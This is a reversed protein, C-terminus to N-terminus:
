ELGTRSLSDPQESDEVIETPRAELMVFADWVAEGPLVRVVTTWRTPGTVGTYTVSLATIEEPTRVAGPMPVRQQVGSTGFSLGRSTLTMGNMPTLQMATSWVGSRQWRLEVSGAKHISTNELVFFWEDKRNGVYLNFAPKAAYSLARVSQRAAFASERASRGSVLASGLSALAAVATAVGAVATIRKTDIPVFATLFIVLAVGVLVITTIVGANRKM